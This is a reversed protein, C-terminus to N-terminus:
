FASTRQVIAKDYDIGIRFAYRQSAEIRFPTEIFQEFGFNPRSQVGILYEGPYLYLQLRESPRFGAVEVGNIFLYITVGAGYLGSDRVFLSPSSTRDAEPALYKRNTIRDTPVDSAQDPPVHSTACGSIAVCLMFAAISLPQNM